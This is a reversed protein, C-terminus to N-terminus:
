WLGCIGKVFLGGISADLTNFDWTEVSNHLAFRPKASEKSKKAHDSTTGIRLGLARVEAFLFAM